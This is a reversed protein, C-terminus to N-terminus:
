KEYRRKYLSNGKYDVFEFSATTKAFQLSVFGQTGFFALGGEDTSGAAPEAALKSGGGAVLYQVGRESNPVPNRNADDIPVLHQLNHDHGSVYFKLKATHRVLLNELKSHLEDGDEDVHSGRTRIPHHGAVVIWDIEADSELAILTADLWDLQEQVRGWQTSVGDPVKAMYADDHYLKLLPVTDIVVVGVGVGGEGRLKKSYFRANENKVWKPHPISLFSPVNGYYDHNGLVYYWPANALRNFRTSMFVDSWSAAIQPDSVSTIGIPYFSDGLNLVGEFSAGLSNAAREMEWAVDKTCFCGRRGFDGVSLISLGVDPDRKIMSNISDPPSHPACYACGPDVQATNEFRLTQADDAARGIRGLGFAAFFFVILFAATCIVNKGCRFPKSSRLQPSLAREGSTSPMTADSFELASAEHDNQSLPQM